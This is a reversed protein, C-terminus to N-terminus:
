SRSGGVSQAAERAEVRACLEEFKEATGGLRTARVSEIIAWVALLRPVVGVQWGLLLLLGRLAAGCGLGTPM